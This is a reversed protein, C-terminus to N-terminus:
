QSRRFHVFLVINGDEEVWAVPIEDIIQYNPNGQLRMQSELLELYLQDGYDGVVLCTLFYCFRCNITKGIKKFFAESLIYKECATEAVFIM